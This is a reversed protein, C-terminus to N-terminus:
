RITAKFNGQITIRDAFCNKDNCIGTLSTSGYVMTGTTFDSTNIKLSMAVPKLNIVDESIPPTFSSTIQYRGHIIKIEYTWRIKKDYRFLNIQVTDGFLEATSATIYIPEDDENPKSSYSVFLDAKVTDLIPTQGGIRMYCSQYVQGENLIKPEHLLKDINIKQFVNLQCFANAACALVICFTSLVRDIKRYDFRHRCARKYESNM